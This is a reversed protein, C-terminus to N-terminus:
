GKLFYVSLLIMWLCGIIITIRELLGAFLELGGYHLIALTTLLFVILSSIGTFLTYIRWKLDDKFRFYKDMAFCALPLGFFLFGAFIKHIIGYFSPGEGYVYVGPPFGNIPDTVFLGAGILGIGCIIIFIPALKSFKEDSRLKFLGYGFFIILTGAVLFTFTQVWGEPGIALASITVMIPNYGERLREQIVYSVILFLPGIIGCLILWKNALNSKIDESVM